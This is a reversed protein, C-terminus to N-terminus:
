CFTVMQNVLDKSAIEKPDYAPIDSGDVTNGYWGRITYKGVNVM